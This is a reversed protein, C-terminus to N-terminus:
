QKLRGFIGAVGGVDELVGVLDFVVVERELLAAHWDEVHDIDVVAWVRVLHRVAVM